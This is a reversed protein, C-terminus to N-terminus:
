ANMPTADTFSGKFKYFTTDGSFFSLEAQLNGTELLKLSFKCDLLSNIKPNVIATFKISDARLLNLKKSVSIEVIEKVMQTLCVGPVIPNDPFHGSFIPHEPNLEVQLQHSNNETALSEKISFFNGLLM